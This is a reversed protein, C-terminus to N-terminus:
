NSYKPRLNNLPKEFFNYICFTFIFLLLLYIVLGIYLNLSFGKLLYIFLLHFLYASYVQNALIKGIKDFKIFFKEKKIFMFCFCFAFIKLVFIYFFSEISNFDKNLFNIYFYYLLALNLILLFHLNIKLKQRTFFYLVIGYAISDLRLFTNIRLETTKIYFSAILNLFLYFLILILSIKLIKNNKFFILLLPFLLYFYEEISLSWIVSIYDFKIFNPYINQILFFYKITDLDFKKFLISFTLLCLIFLPLTRIWRRYFFIRLNETNYVKILQPTLVFGSLIFFFEVFIFSLFEFFFINNMYFFYHSICVGFGSLARFFNLSSLYNM